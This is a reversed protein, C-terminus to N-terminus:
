GTVQSRTVVVIDADWVAEHLNTVVKLPCLPIDIM